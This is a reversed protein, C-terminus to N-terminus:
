SLNVLRPVASCPKSVEARVSQPNRALALAAFCGDLLAGPDPKALGLPPAGQPGLGSM